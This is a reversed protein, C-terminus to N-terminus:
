KTKERELRGQIEIMKERLNQAAIDMDEPTINQGQWIDSFSIPDAIIVNRRQWINKRQKIYALVIPVDVQCAIRIVGRHFPLIGEGNELEGEPTIAFIEGQRLLEVAREIISSDGSGREYPIVFTSRFFWTAIFNVRYLEATAFYYIRTLPMLMNIIVGDWLSSHNTVLLYPAKTKLNKRGIIRYRWALWAFPFATIKIFWLKFM